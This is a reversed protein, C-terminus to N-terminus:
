RAQQRLRRWGLVALGSFALWAAEPEPVSPTVPAYLQTVVQGQLSGSLSLVATLATDKPNYVALTVAKSLHYGGQTGVVDFQYSDTENYGLSEGGLREGLLFSVQGGAFATQFGEDSSLPTSLVSANIDLQFSLTARSHPALTFSTPALASADGSGLSWAISAFATSVTPTSRLDFSLAVTSGQGAVAGTQASLANGSLALSMPTLDFMGGQAPASAQGYLNAYASPWPDQPNILRPDYVTLYGSARNQTYLGDALPTIAGPLATNADMAQATLSLRSLTITATAQSSSEGPTQAQAVAPLALAAGVVTGCAVGLAAARRRARRRAAVGVVGLGALALSWTEGEPVPSAGQAVAVHPMLNAELYGTMASDTNNYFYSAFSQSRQRTQADSGQNYILANVKGSQVGGQGNSAPGIAGFTVNLGADQLSIGLGTNLEADAVLSLDVTARFVAYSHASLTFSQGYTMAGTAVMVAQEHPAGPPLNRVMASTSLTLPGHSSDLSYAMTAYNRTASDAILASGDLTPATDRYGIDVRDIQVPPSWWVNSGWTQTAIMTAEFTAAGLSLSPSGGTPAGLTHVEYSIQSLSGNVTVDAHAAAVSLLLTAATAAQILRNM